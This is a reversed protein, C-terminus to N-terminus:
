PKTVYRKLAQVAPAKECDCSVAHKEALVSRWMAAAEPKERQLAIALGTYSDFPHIKRNAEACNALAARIDDPDCTVTAYRVMEFSLDVSGKPFAVPDYPKPLNTGYHTNASTERQSLWTHVKIHQEVYAKAQAKTGIVFQRLSLASDCIECLRKMITDNTDQGNSFLVMVLDRLRQHTYTATGLRIATNFLKDYDTLTPFSM